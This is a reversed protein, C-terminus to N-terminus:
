LTSALCAKLAVVSQVTINSRRSLLDLPSVPQWGLDAELPSMAMSEIRASNYAYEAAPLLEAWSAQNYNCYCLLCSSIMLNMIETSGDSQPHNSTSTKLSIGCISTLQTWLGSTFRPDRDSVISDPLGHLRFIQEFFCRAVDEATDTSKSPILHVRKTLRDVFTTICDFGGTTTPLHTVFDMSVSGWRPEPKERPQPVGFPKSRGDKNLQCTM